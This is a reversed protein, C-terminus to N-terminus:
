IARSSTDKPTSFPSNSASNPGEPEPLVVSKRTIAPRSKFREPSQIDRISIDLAARGIRKKQRKTTSDFRGTEKRQGREPRENDISSYYVKMRTYSFLRNTTCSSPAVSKERDGPLRQSSEAIQQGALVSIGPM